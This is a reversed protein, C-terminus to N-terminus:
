LLRTGSETDFLHLRERDIALGIPEGIGTEVDAPAIVSLTQEGGRVTVIQERGSPETVYVEGRIDAEPEDARTLRMHEPRIALVAQAPLDGTAAGRGLDLRMSM